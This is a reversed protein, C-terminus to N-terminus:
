GLLVRMALMEALVSLKNTIPTKDFMDVFGETFKGTPDFAKIAKEYVSTTIIHAATYLISAIAIIITIINM